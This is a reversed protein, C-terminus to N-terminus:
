LRKREREQDSEELQLPNSISQLDSKRSRIQYTTEYTQSMQWLRASNLNANGEPHRSCIGNANVTYVARRKCRGTRCRVKPGLFPNSM